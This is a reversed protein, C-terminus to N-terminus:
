LAKAAAAALQPLFKELATPISLPTPSSMPMAAVNDSSAVYSGRQLAPIKSLLANGTIQKTQAANDVYFVLVDADATSANEASVDVSFLNPKGASLKTVFSPTTMGFAELMRPRNDISTYFSVKSLDTPTFWAWAASKGKIAPYKAVATKISNETDTKLKAAETSKGFAKGVLDLSQQWSTGWPQDPYAVVPAIKSLKAYDDKTIGSNTALILDPKLAAVKDFPTGDADSYRTPQKGGIKALAADYWDTSKGANGGWTVEPAGVPAVGLSVAVDQDSWGLTVVRQPAKTITASGLATKVTVPFDGSDTTTTAGAAQTGATQSDAGGTPGTSCAALLGTALLAIPLAIKQM